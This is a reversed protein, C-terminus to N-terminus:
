SRSFAAPPLTFIFIQRSVSKRNGRLARPKRDFKEYGGGRLSLSEVPCLTENNVATERKTRPCREKKENRVFRKFIKDFLTHMMVSVEFLYKTQQCNFKIM